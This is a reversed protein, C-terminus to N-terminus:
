MSDYKVLSLSNSHARRQLVVKTTSVLQELGIPNLSGHKPRPILVKKDFNIRPRQTIYQHRRLRRRSQSFM